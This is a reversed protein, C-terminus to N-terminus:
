FFFVLLFTCDYYLLLNNLLIYKSLDYYYHLPSGQDHLPQSDAQWHLSCKPKLGPGPLDWMGTCQAVLGTCWLQQTQARSGALWLQQARTGCSSFGARRSGTNRLLLLWQSSSGVCRLSSCGRSAAVLSLECAAIFVWCLWFYIFLIFFLFFFFFCITFDLYRYRLQNYPVLM